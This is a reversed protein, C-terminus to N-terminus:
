HLLYIRIVFPEFTSQLLEEIIRIIRAGDGNAKGHGIAPIALRGIGAQLCLDLAKRLARESEAYKFVDATKSIGFQTYLNIGVKRQNYFHYSIEGPVAKGSLHARTDALYLEPLRNKVQYAIGAGMINLCNCGHAIALEAGSEFATILCGKRYEIM